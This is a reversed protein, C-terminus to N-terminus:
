IALSSFFAVLRLLGSLSSSASSGVGLLVLPRPVDFLLPTPWVTPLLGRELPHEKHLLLRVHKSVDPSPTACAEM